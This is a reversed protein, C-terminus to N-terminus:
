AAHSVRQAAARAALHRPNSDLVRGILHQAQRNDRLAAYADAQLLALNERDSRVVGELDLYDAFRLAKAPDSAVFERMRRLARSERLFQRLLPQLSRLRAHYTHEEHVRKMGARAIARREHEHTLFYEAKRRLDDADRYIVIEVGDVFCASADSRDDTLVLSGCAMAEFVRMNLSSPGHPRTVNVSIRAQQYTERVRDRALFEGAYCRALLSSARWGNADYGYIVLGLHSIPELMRVRQETPGGLFVLPHAVASHGADAPRDHFIEANVGLPCHAARTIGATHLVGTAERDWCLVLSDSRQLPGLYPAPVEDLDGDFPYDFDCLFYVGPRRLMEHFRTDVGGLYDAFMPELYELGYSLVLDPNFREIEVITEAVVQAKDDVPANANAYLTGELDTWHVPWGVRRTATTLDVMIYRAFSRQRIFTLLKM